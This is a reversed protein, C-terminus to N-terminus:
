VEEGNFDMRVTQKDFNGMNDGTITMDEIFYNGLSMDNRGIMEQIIGRELNPNYGIWDFSMRSNKSNRKALIRRVLPIGIATPIEAINFSEFRKRKVDLPVTPYVLMQKSTSRVGSLSIDGSREASITNSVINRIHDIKQIYVKVQGNNVPKTEETVTWLPAFLREMGVNLNGAEHARLYDQKFPEDLYTNDSDVAVVGSAQVNRRLQIQKSPFFPHAGYTIEETEERATIFASNGDDMVDPLEAEYTKLSSQLRGYSDYEFSETNRSVLTAAGGAYVRTVSEKIVEKTIVDPEAIRYYRRITTDTEVKSYGESGFDGSTESTQELEELYAEGELENEIYDVIFASVPIYNSSRSIQTYNDPKVKGPSPFGAPFTVTSDLIWVIGHILTIIPRFPAVLSNLAQTYSVTPSIDFRKVQFNPINTKYTGIASQQVILNFIDYLTLPNFPNLSVGIGPKGGTGPIAKIEGDNIEVRNVDYMVIIEEPSYSMKEQIEDIFSIVLTDTPSNSAWGVSFNKSELTGSDLIMHWETSGGSKVGIEFTCGGGLSYNFTSYDSIRALQLELSMGITDKPYKAVFRKIPYEVGSFKFRCTYQQYTNSSIPPVVDVVFKLTNGYPLRKKLNTTLNSRSNFRYIGKQHNVVCHLHSSSSFDVEIANHNIADLFIDLSSTSTFDASVFRKGKILCTLNSTSAFNAEVSPSSSSFLSIIVSSSM